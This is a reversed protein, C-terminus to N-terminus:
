KDGEGGGRGRESHEDGGCEKGEEGKDENLEEQVKMEVVKTEEDNEDEQAEIKEM